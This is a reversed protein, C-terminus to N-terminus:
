RENNTNYVNNHLLSEMFYSHLYAYPKRFNSLLLAATDAEKFMNMCFNIIADNLLMDPGLKRLDRVKVYYGMCISVIMDNFSISQPMDDSESLQIVEVEEKKEDGKEDGKEKKWQKKEEKQKKEKNLGDRSAKNVNGQKRRTTKKKKVKDFFFIMASYKLTMKM